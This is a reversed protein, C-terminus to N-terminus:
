YKSFYLKYPRVSYPPIDGVDALKFVQTAVIKGNTDVLKLPVLDFNVTTNIGNRFFISAELTDGTDFVYSTSINVDNEKIDGFRKLDEKIIEKQVKSVIQEEEAKFSLKLEIKKRNDYMKNKM